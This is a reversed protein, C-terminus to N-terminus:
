ESSTFLCFFGCFVFLDKTSSSCCLRLMPLDSVRRTTLKLCPSRSETAQTKTCLSKTSLKKASSWAKSRGRQMRQPCTSRANGWPPLCREVTTLHQSSAQELELLLAM